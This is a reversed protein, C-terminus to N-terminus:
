RFAIIEVSDVGVQAESIDTDHLLARMLWAARNM